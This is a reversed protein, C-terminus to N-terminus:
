RSGQENLKAAKERPGAKEPLGIDRFLDVRNSWVVLPGDSGGHFRGIVGCNLLLDM